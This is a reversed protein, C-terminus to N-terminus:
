PLSRLLDLQEEDMHGDRFLAAEVTVVGGRANVRSLYDQMRPATVQCGPRAWADYPSHGAPAIGLPALMHWQAGNLFRADPVDEFGNMEGCTFDDQASYFRVRDMVGGNFALLSEPNGSRLADALLGHLEDTYGLSRYCGDVWWGKVQDGYRLSYERAVAAWNRVFGETVPAGNGTFGLALGAQPDALPGDGTYYLFLPIGYRDLAKILDSILDRRSCAEGPRYGTLRDYTGNPSCMHRTCQMVTFILYGANTEAIQGALRDVDLANVCEDWSTEGAGMNRTDGPHFAPDNQVSYLYHIFIGWKRDRFWDLTTHM